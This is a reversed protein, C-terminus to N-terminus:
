RGSARHRVLRGSAGGIAGLVGFILAVLLLQAASPGVANPPMGLLVSGLLLAGLGLGTAAGTGWWVRAPQPEERELWRLVLMLQAAYALGFLLIRGYALFSSQLWEATFLAPPRVSGEAEFLHGDDAERNLREIMVLLFIWGITAPVFLTALGALWFPRPPKDEGEFAPEDM